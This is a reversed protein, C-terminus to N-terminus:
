PTEPTSEKIHPLQSPDAVRRYLQTWNTEFAPDVVKDWWDYVGPFGPLRRAMEVILVKFGVDDESVEMWRQQNDDGLVLRIQDVTVCDRKYAYVATIQEWTLRLQPEDNAPVAFLTVRSDDCQIEIRKGDRWEQVASWTARMRAQVDVVKM